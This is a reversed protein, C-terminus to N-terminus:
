GKGDSAGPADGTVLGCRGLRCLRQGVRDEWECALVAVGMAQGPHPRATRSLVVLEGKNSRRRRRRSGM